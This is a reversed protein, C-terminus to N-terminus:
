DTSESQSETESETENEESESDEKSEEESDKEEDEETLEIVITAEESNVYLHKKWAEYGNAKIELVHTGYTLEIPQSHDILQYDIYVKVDDVDIQFSIMGKKKGEGKLTDLDVVTTEGRTIVIETTGGWGDNAVKLTYVGEPVDLEMNETIIAFIDFDLQLFSNEFLETNKLSLTGHGTTVVVSIIKRDIGVVTLIDKDSLKSFPIREGNSLVYVKDMISYKTDAITLIGKEEDVSFRKVKEYEWVQNSLQLETLYGDKDTKGITVVRGPCFEVASTYKGYKDKFQTMFSYEYFYEQGKELSYLTLSEEMTDNAVILFLNETQVTDEESEEETQTNGGKDDQGCGVLCIVAILMVMLLIFIKQIKKKMM